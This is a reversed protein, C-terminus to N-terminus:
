AFGSDGEVRGVRSDTRNGFFKQELEAQYAYQEPRVSSGTVVSAVFDHVAKVEKFHHRCDLTRTVSRLHIRHKNHPQCDYVIQGPENAIQAYLRWDGAIRYQDLESAV